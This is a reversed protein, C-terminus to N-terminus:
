ACASRVSRILQAYRTVFGVRNSKEIQVAALGTSGSAGIAWPSGSSCSHDNENARPCTSGPSACPKQFKRTVGLAFPVVALILTLRATWGSASTSSGCTRATSPRCTSTTSARGSASSATGPSSRKPPRAM